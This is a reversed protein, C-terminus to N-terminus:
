DETGDETNGRARVKKRTKRKRDVIVDGEPKVTVRTDSVFTSLMGKVDRYAKPRRPQVLPPEVTNKSEPIRSNKEKM